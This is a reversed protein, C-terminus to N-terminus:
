RRRSEEMIGMAIQFGADFIQTFMPEGHADDIGIRVPAIPQHHFHNTIRVQWTHQDVRPYFTFGRPQALQVHVREEGRM